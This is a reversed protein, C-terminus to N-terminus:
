SKRRDALQALKWQWLGVLCMVLFVAYLIATLPLSRSFYLPVYILDAAIWFYWNELRKRSLLYQASLSLVSTLADWFPAAGQVLFLIRWLMVTALPVVLGLIAWELRTAHTVALKGRAQDGGSLWISWGYIALVLYVIQLGADAYLRSQFFLVFFLVNNAMGIPWNWLNERVILWVCVGGTIFGLVETWTMPWWALATALVMLASVGAMALIEGIRLTPPGTGTAAPLPPSEESMCGPGKNEDVKSDVYSASV